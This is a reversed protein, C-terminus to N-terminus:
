KPPPPMKDGLQLYQWLANIQKAVDGDLVNALPSKAQDQFYAPM